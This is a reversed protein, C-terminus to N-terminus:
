AIVFESFNEEDHPHRIRALNPGRPNPLFTRYENGSTVRKKLPEQAVKMFSTLYRIGDRILVTEEKGNHPSEQHQELYEPIFYENLRFWKSPSPSRNVELLGQLQSRDIREFTRNRVQEIEGTIPNRYSGTFTITWRLSYLSGPSDEQKKGM